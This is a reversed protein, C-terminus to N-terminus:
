YIQLRCVFFYKDANIYYFLLVAIHSGKDLYWHGQYNDTARLFTRQEM